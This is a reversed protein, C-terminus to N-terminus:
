EHLMIRSSSTFFNRPRGAQKCNAWLVSAGRETGIEHCNVRGTGNFLSKTSELKITFLIELRLFHGSRHLAPLEVIRLPTRSCIFIEEPHLIDYLGICERLISRKLFQRPFVWGQQMHDIHKVKLPLSWMILIIWNTVIFDLDVLELDAQM